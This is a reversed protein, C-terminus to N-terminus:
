ADIGSGKDEDEDEEDELAEEEKLKGNMGHNKHDIQEKQTRDTLHGGGIFLESIKKILKGKHYHDNGHNKGEPNKYELDENSSHVDDAPIEIPEIPEMEDFEMNETLYPNEGM